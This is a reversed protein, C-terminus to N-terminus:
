VSNPFEHPAGLHRPLNPSDVSTGNTLVNHGSSEQAAVLVMSYWILAM